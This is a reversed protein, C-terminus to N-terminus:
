KYDASIYGKKKIFQKIVYKSGSLSFTRRKGKIKKEDTKWSKAGQKVLAEIM